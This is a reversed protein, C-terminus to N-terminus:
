PGTPPHNEIKKRKTKRFSSKTSTDIDIRPIEISWNSPRPLCPAELISLLQKAQERINAEKNNVLLKCISVAKEEDGRGIHATVELLRLQGGILTQESFSLLLPGM